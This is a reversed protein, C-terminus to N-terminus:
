RLSTTALKSAEHNFRRQKIAENKLRERERLIEEGRGFYVDSPTLNNLSEHYRRNNYYDVWDAIAAKLESPCYYNNLKIINKMSRHYREIKGQTQPHLPAGHIQKINHQSELYEGLDKAIYCPGNDSLLKPANDKTLGAAEMARDVSRIVDDKTMTECLEWYMIRRSFDDLVTSLYYWGWGIIRFYTFDTQWMENQFQTKHRFSDSASIM